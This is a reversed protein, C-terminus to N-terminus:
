PNITLTTDKSNNTEDSENIRNVDDAVARITHTGPTTAFSKKGKPGSNSAVMVSEGPALSKNFSDAWSVFQDDVFFAVGHTIGAPSAATGINRITAGLTIEDGVKANAPSWSINTLVLDPFANKTPVTLRSPEGLYGAADLARVEYPYGLNPQLNSDAFRPEVTPERDFM